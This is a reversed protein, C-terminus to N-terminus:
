RNSGRLEISDPLSEIADVIADLKASLRKAADNVDANHRRGADVLAELKLVALWVGVAIIALLAVTWTM